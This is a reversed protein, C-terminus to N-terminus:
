ICKALGKSYDQETGTWASSINLLGGTNVKSKLYLPFKSWLKVEDSSSHKHAAANGAGNQKKRKRVGGTSSAAPKAATNSKGWKVQVEERWSIWNVDESNAHLLVNTM